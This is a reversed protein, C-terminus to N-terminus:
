LGSGRQRLALVPAPMVPPNQQMAQNPQSLDLGLSANHEPDHWPTEFEYRLGLNLSIRRSLKYDDQIYGAYLETEM